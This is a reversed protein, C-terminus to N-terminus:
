ECIEVDSEGNSTSSQPSPLLDHRPTGSEVCVRRWKARRNQFWTKIQRESLKLNKAVKKREPPSLYKRDMFVKELGITQDTTFRVQGGKRKSSTRWSNMYNSSWLPLDRKYPIPEMCLKTNQSECGSVHQGHYCTQAVVVPMPRNDVPPSCHPLWGHNYQEPNQQVPQLHPRAMQLRNNQAALTLEDMRHQHYDALPFSPHFGFQPCPRANYNHYNRPPGARHNCTILRDTVEPPLTDLAERPVTGVEFRGLIAGGVGYLEPVRGNSDYNQRIGVGPKYSKLVGVDYVQNHRYRLELATDLRQQCLSPQVSENTSRRAGRSPHGPIDIGQSRGTHAPQNGAAQKSCKPKLVAKFPQYQHSVAPRIPAKKDTTEKPRHHVISRKEQKKSLLNEIYFRRSEKLSQKEAMRSYQDLM